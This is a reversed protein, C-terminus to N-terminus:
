EVKIIYKYNTDKENIVDHLEAIIDGVKSSEQYMNNLTCYVKDDKVAKFEKFMDNQSTLDNKSLIGGDITGNYILIDADKGYYYFDEWSINVTSLANEEEIKLSSLAYEGGAIEIMKSVYDGPKRVNVYGNSSLYFFVVKKHEESTSELESIVKNVHNVQESFVSEAQEKKGLLLGYLKIWELRGLPDSEYSSREVFVPISLSSLEEKIKPSHYIMTSEIALNTNLSILKEYDPASYKGVYNIEGSSILDSIKKDAYDEAKTSCSKVCDTSNLENLLDMVSSAALYISDCPTKIFVADEDDLTIEPYGEPILVYSNGDNVHISAYGNEYLDVSFEKAYDLKYESILKPRKNEKETDKQENLMEEAADNGPNAAVNEISDSEKISLNKAEININERKCGSFILVLFVIAFIFFIRNKLEKKIVMTINEVIYSYLYILGKYGFLDVALIVTSWIVIM